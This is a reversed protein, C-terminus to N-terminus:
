FLLRLTKPHTGAPHRFLQLVGTSAEARTTGGVPGTKDTIKRPTHKTRTQKFHTQHGGDSDPTCLHQKSQRKKINKGRTINTSGLEFFNAPLLHAGLERTRMSLTHERPREAGRRGRWEHKCESFSSFMIEAFFFTESLETHREYRVSHPIQEECGETETKGGGLISPAVVREPFFACHSSLQCRLQSAARFLTTPLFLLGYAPRSLCAHGRTNLTCLRHLEIHLAIAIVTIRGHLVFPRKPM